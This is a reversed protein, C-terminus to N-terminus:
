SEREEDGLVDGALGVIFEKVREGKDIHQSVIKRAKEPDLRAYTVQEGDASEVRMVVEQGDFGLSGTVTVPVDDIERKALEDMVSKMVDRAGSAIGITGMSITVKYPHEGGRVELDRKVKDRMKKLDELDM